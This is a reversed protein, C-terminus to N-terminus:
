DARHPPQPPGHGGACDAPAPVLPVGATPPLRQQRCGHLATCCSLPPPCMPLHMCGAAAGLRCGAHGEWLSAGTNRMCGGSAWWLCVKFCVLGPEDDGLVERVYDAAFATYRKWHMRMPSAGRTANNVLVPLLERLRRERQATSADGPLILPQANHTYIGFLHQMNFLPVAIDYVVHRCPPRPCSVSANAVVAQLSSCRGDSRRAWGGTCSVLATAPRRRQGATPRRRQAALWRNSAQPAAWCGERSGVCQPDATLEVPLAYLATLLAQPSPAM